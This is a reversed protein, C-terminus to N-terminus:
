SLRKIEREDVTGGNPGQGRSSMETSQEPGRRFEKHTRRQREPGWLVGRSGDHDRRLIEKHLM